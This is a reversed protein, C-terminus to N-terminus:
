LQSPPPPPPPPAGEGHGQGMGEGRHERMGERQRKEMADFKTKQEDTLIARVKHMGEEHIKMMERRRDQESLSTNNRVAEARSRQEEMITKVQAKQAESLDLERLMRMPGGPGGPGRGGPGGPHQGEAGPPPPLPPGDQQARAHPLTLVAGFLLVAAAAHKRMTLRM